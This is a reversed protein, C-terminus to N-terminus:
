NYPSRGKGAGGGGEGAGGGGEGAKRPLTLLPHHLRFPPETPLCGGAILGRPSMRAQIEPNARQRGVKQCPLNKGSATGSKAPYKRIKTSNLSPLKAPARPLGRCGLGQLLSLAAPEPALVQTIHSAFTFAVTAEM